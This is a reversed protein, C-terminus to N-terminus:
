VHNGKSSLFKAIAELIGEAVFQPDTELYSVTTWIDEGAYEEDNGNKSYVSAGWLDSATGFYFNYFGDQVMICDIGGGTAIVEAWKGAKQIFGAVQDFNAEETDAAIKPVETTEETAPTPEIDLVLNALDGAGMDMIVSDPMDDGAAANKDGAMLPHAGMEISQEQDRLTKIQANPFAQRVEELELGNGRDCRQGLATPHYMRCNACEFFSTDEAAFHNPNVTKTADSNDALESKTEGELESNAESIDEEVSALLALGEAAEGVEAAEGMGGLNLASGESHPDQTEEHISMGHGTDVVEAKKNVHCGHTCLKNGSPNINKCEGCIGTECAPCIYGKTAVKAAEELSKTPQQIDKDVTDPSVVESKAEAFDPQVADATKKPSKRQNLAVPSEIPSPGHLYGCYTCKGESMRHQCKPCWKPCSHAAQKERPARGGLVDSEASDPEVADTQKVSAEEHFEDDYDFYDDDHESVWDGLDPNWTKKSNPCGTEHCPVGNISLMQCQNCSLTAEELESAADDVWDSLGASVNWPKNEESDTDNSGESTERPESSSGTSDPQSAAYGEGPVEVEPSPGFDETIDNWISEFDLPVEAQKVAAQKRYQNLKEERALNAKRQKPSIVQRDDSIEAAVHNALYGTPDEKISATSEMREKPSGVVTLNNVNVKGPLDEGKDWSIVALAWEPTHQEIATVTGKAFCMDGTYQGISRLFTVSYRVKDGVKVETKIAASKELPKDGYAGAKIEKAHDEVASKSQKDGVVYAEIHARVDKPTEGEDLVGGFRKSTSATLDGKISAKIEPHPFEVKKAVKATKTDAKNVPTGDSNLEIGIPLGEMPNLKTDDKKPSSNLGEKLGPGVNTTPAEFPAPALDAKKSGKIQVQPIDKGPETSNEEAAEESTEVSPLLVETLAQELSEFVNMEQPELAEQTIEDATKATLFVRPKHAGAQKQLNPLDRVASETLFPHSLKPTIDTVDLKSTDTNTMLANFASSVSPNYYVSFILHQVLNTLKDHDSTFKIFVYDRTNAWAPAFLVICAFKGEADGFLKEKIGNFDTQTYNDFESQGIRHEILSGVEEGGFNRVITGYLLATPFDKGNGACVSPPIIYVRGISINQRFGTYFVELAQIEGSSKAKKEGAEITEVTKQLLGDNVMFAQFGKSTQNGM